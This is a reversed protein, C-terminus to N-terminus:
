MPFGTDALLAQGGEEITCIYQESKGNQQHTYPVTRQVMIGRSVLHVGMKGATLELKGGCRITKVIVRNSQELFAETFKYHSFMDSKLHLGFTFGRNSKDDLINFFYKEGHPVQVPFPGCLDMHLLGGVADAHHGHSPYSKQPSKGVICLICHNQIFSGDLQVGMVYNKALAAQTADMGLHGFWCHWLMLDLHVCPFSSIASPSESVSCSPLVQVPFAVSSPLSPSIFTLNFFSLHNLVTAPLTLGPLHPHSDPYFLNTIGGPSFLCNFGREVLAGMSLLNIPASPAYICGHLTFVM